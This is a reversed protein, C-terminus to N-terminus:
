RLINSSIVVKMIESTGEYIETIKADRYMKEIPYDKMYGYGGHVQLSTNTVERAITSAYLKAIAAETTFREGNDELWAAHYVLWRAAEVKTKMEALYWQIGQLAAIPKGFQIREKSYQVALEYAGEALGLAQAATGIRASDLAIMSYKFGSGIKGLLNEKPIRVNSFVLEATQSGRIGMKNEVKGYTFGPTGAEVIFASLGRTKASPDTSAIIVYVAALGGGTIFCKTGNLIYSDGEEVATTKVNSADSGAGPETLAFAALKGGTTIRPLFKEKQEETGFTNILFPGVGHVSLMSAQTTDIKALEEIILTQALRGEGSGGYKTPIGVGTFGVEAMQELVDLPLEARKEIEDRRPECVEQAFRRAVDQIMEHQPSLKFDM